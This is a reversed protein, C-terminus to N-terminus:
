GNTGDKRENADRGTKGPRRSAVSLYVVFNVFGAALCLVFITAADM